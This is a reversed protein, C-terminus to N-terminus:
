ATADGVAQRQDLILEPTVLGLQVAWAGAQYACRIGLKQHISKVWDQITWHSLGLMSAVDRTPIGQALLTLVERERDTLAQGLKREISM